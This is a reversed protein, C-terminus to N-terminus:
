VFYKANNQVVIKTDLFTFNQPKLGQYIPLKKDPLNPSRDWFHRFILLLVALFYISCYLQKSKWIM